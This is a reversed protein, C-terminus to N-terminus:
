WLLIQERLSELVSYTVNIDSSLGGGSGGAEQRAALNRAENKVSFTAAVM